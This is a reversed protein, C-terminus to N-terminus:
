IFAKLCCYQAKTLIMSERVGMMTIARLETRPENAFGTGTIPLRQSDVTYNIRVAIGTGEVSITFTALVLPLVILGRM